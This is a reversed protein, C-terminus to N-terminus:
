RLFASPFVRHCFHRRKLHVIFLNIHLTNRGRKQKIETTKDNNWCPQSVSTHIDFDVINDWFLRYRSSIVVINVIDNINKEFAVSLVLLMM